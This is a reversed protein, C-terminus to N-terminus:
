KVCRALAGQLGAEGKHISGEIRNEKGKFLEHVLLKGFKKRVAEVLAPHKNFIGGGLVICSPDVFLLIHYLENAIANVAKDVISIAREDEKYYFDMIEKLTLQPDNFTIRGLRELSNGSVTKELTAGDEEVVTFGVEGAMGAGRLFRGESITCCSIGTSLTLYVFTENTFGRAAFEGWTAMYVDNDVIIEANTFLELLREKLPFDRWPLNNQFIAIGADVDVIGPIGLSVGAIESLSVEQHKCLKEFSEVLSLYLKEGDENESRIEHREVLTGAEDFLATALKTGGIDATLIYNM